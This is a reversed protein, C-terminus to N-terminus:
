GADLRAEAALSEALEAVELAQRASYGRDSFWVIEGRDDLVLVRAAQGNRNGTLQAVPKAQGRYLTVVAGWDGEPIGSRMGDDIWKSVPTPVLGPITPVEYIPIQVEAQLLGLFWRDIDFQTSQKYGVILIVPQGALDDPITIREEELSKGTVTPFVEGTPDRNDYSAACSPLM